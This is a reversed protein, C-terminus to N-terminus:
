FRIFHVMENKLICTFFTVINVYALYLNVQVILCISIALMVLGNQNAGTNANMHRHTPMCAHTRAHTHTHTHSLNEGLKILIIIYSM